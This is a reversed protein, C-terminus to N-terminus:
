GQLAVTNGPQPETAGRADDTRERERGHHRARLAGLGSARARALGLIAAAEEVRETLEEVGARQEPGGLLLVRAADQQHFVAVVALRDGSEAAHEGFM